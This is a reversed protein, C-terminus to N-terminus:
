AGGAGTDMHEFRPNKSNQSNHVEARRKRGRTAVPTSRQREAAIEAKTKDRAVSIGAFEPRGKLLKCNGLAEKREGANALRICFGRSKGNVAPGVRCQETVRIQQHSDPLIVSLLSKVKQIAQDDEPVGWIMLNSLKVARRIGEEVREDLNVVDNQLRLVDHRINEQEMSISAQEQEMKTLKELVHNHAAKIESMEKTISQKMGIIEQFVMDLTVVSSGSSQGQNGDEGEKQKTPSRHTPM